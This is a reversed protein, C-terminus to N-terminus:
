TARNAVREAAMLKVKRLDIKGTALMPLDDLRYVNEQKPLWLTPLETHSLAKWVAEPTAREAGTYLVVLREGKRADPLSTVACGKVGPVRSVAEEVKLHPVMEGGIKSFRALRDTIRIFGDEDIAAIDGTVYWDDRLAEATKEPNALYGLMRGPGKVLLLGQADQPLTEGTDPDVVKAAVGPVPHGVTGPKHGTQRLGWHAFDAVNVSVVPGMETCGYGELLDLGFKEKFAGAVSDPLKEAGVIVHRLSSFEEATCARIYAQCFTPTSILVTARHASVMRGISKADLPNAHYVAGIGCVLPIWLAGTLGFSHFFPLVGVIKDQRSIWLVQAVAEVNSLLNHHSLMVGKPVGTSGSTFMVTAVAHPDSGRAGHIWELARAPLIYCLAATLAKEFATITKIIDEVFVMGDREALKAKALFARSTVITMIGCQKIASEMSEQGATFNLNVPVKGAFLLAVNVLVGAVSAPLLVGVMRDPSLRKRFWRALVLSGVLTRGFTLKTGTSDAVCPAMWRRKATRLFRLHLLDRRTRRHQVADSGLELIAQRVQWAKTSPPLPKGFSVTVPYPFREPWKWFFRGGKFSFISGWVQDLHVPIIPVELGAVIKEFGRRFPLPNGTRSIAGEAFICVVEGNRLEEKAKELSKVIERPRRESIPIAKMKRCLWNFMKMEYYHRNVMFRVFRQICAGVLLGDIFSFHNCVLLAPGRFPVHEQGVIRIRYVSHTLLWLSFRILFDPLIALVYATAVFTFLGVILVIGDAQIQLLDRFIWLAASALLIGVVNLFNNAAILRGREGIAARQQLFAVLPVIYLGGSFGLLVLAISAATFSPPAAALLLASVGIGISGLPVLGLEVKDGSLRGAALSGIGIGIAVSAQLLGIRTDDLAMVEKGLLIVDLQLLAGLFWFYSIGLVTLWLPKDGYLRGVGRVIEAWPNLAFPKRVSPEPVRAIGLSSLTGLIAVAILVAGIWELRDKWAGFMVSGIATGLIIALFTMMEVLGNGRSLDKDPLMEPLIGYKAPSFFSSQMAMLFLVAFMAEIRGSWFALLGLGMAVIEFSKTLILIKRKSFADALHGAYGSFLLYPLVFLAGAIALYASGGGALIALNAAFLSIVIKFLNDNLAGLFLTVLLSRFGSLRVLDRYTGTSM